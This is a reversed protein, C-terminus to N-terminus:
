LSRSSIAPLRKSRIMEMAVNSCRQSRGDTTARHPSKSAGPPVKLTPIGLSPVSSQVRPHFNVVPTGTAGVFAPQFSGSAIPIQSGIRISALKGDTARIRPNQVLKTASSTALFQAVTPPINLSFSGSNLDQLNRLTIATSSSTSTTPSGSPELRTLCRSGARRPCMSSQSAGTAWHSTLTTSRAVTM